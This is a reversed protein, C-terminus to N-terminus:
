PTVALRLRLMRRSPSNCVMRWRKRPWRPASPAAVMTALSAASDPLSTMSALFMSFLKPSRVTTLPKEVRM